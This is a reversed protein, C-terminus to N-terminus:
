RSCISWNGIKIFGLKKYIKGAEENDYFLCPTKNENLIERCIKSLCKTAYGKNRFQPHTGVGVIMAHNKNEATSKAMAVAQKNVEIYYGRGTKLGSKICKISTNEFEDIRAYLNVIKKLNWIKIKKIRIDRTNKNLHYSNELKCFNVRRIIKLRLKEAMSDVIESKGGIEYFDMNKIINYFKDINIISNSYITIFEFYKVLVGAIDGNISIDAWINFFNNNYGYRDIDGIIFLNFEPEQNLYNMLKNHYRNDLKIIM